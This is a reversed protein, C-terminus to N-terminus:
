GAKVSRDDKGQDSRGLWARGIAVALVALGLGIGAGIWTAWATMTWLVREAAAFGTIFVLLPILFAVIVPRTAPSAQSHGVQRYVEKCTERRGCDKCPEQQTM